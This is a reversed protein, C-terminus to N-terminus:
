KKGEENRREKRIEKRGVMTREKGKERKKEEGKV